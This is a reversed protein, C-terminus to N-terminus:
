ILEKVMYVNCGAHGTDGLAHEIKEFGNLTYLKIAAHMDSLTELYMRKFNFTRADEISLELLRKGIGLGRTDKDLFMRQLECTDPDGGDLPAIGCGGAMLGDVEVVHYSSRPKKFNSYMTKLAPDGIITTQPNANFESMARRIIKELQEDDTKAVPRFSIRRNGSIFEHM